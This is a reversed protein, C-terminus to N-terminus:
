KIIINRVYTQLVIYIVSASNLFNQILSGCLKLLSISDQGARERDSLDLGRQMDTEGPGPPWRHLGKQKVSYQLM